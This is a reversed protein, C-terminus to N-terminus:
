GCTVRWSYTSRLVAFARRDFVLMRSSHWPVLWSHSYTNMEWYVSFLKNCNSIIQHLTLGWHCIYIRHKATLFTSTIPKEICGYLGGLVRARVSSTTQGCVSLAALRTSKLLCLPMSIWALDILLEGCGSHLGAHGAYCGWSSM